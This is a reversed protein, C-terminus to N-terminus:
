FAVNARRETRNSMESSTRVWDHGKLVIEKTKHWHGYKKASALDAGHHGYLNTFIRDEDRLGGFHTRKPTGEQVTAFTKKQQIPTAAAPTASLRAAAPLARSLSQTSPAHRAIM